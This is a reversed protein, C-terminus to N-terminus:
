GPPPSASIRLLMAEVYNLGDSFNPIVPCHHVKFQDQVAPSSFDRINKNIFCCQNQHSYLHQKVAVYVIADQPGLGLQRQAALAGRLTEDNTPIIAATNLLRTQMEELRQNEELSSDVLLKAIHAYQELSDAHHSSRGLETLEARLKTSLAKRERAKRILKEHPESIAYAPIALDITKHEALELLHHCPRQEQQQLALELVFNTEVYVIM